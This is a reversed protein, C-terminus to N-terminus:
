RSASGAMTDIASDIERRSSLMTVSGDILVASGQPSDTPLGAAALALPASDSMALVPVDRDVADRIITALNAREEPHSVASSGTVILGCLTEPIIASRAGVVIPLSTLNNRDLRQEVRRFELQRMGRRLVIAARKASRVIDAKSRKGPAIRLARAFASPKFKPEQSAEKSATIASDM